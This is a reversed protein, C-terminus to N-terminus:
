KEHTCIFHYAAFQSRSSFEETQIMSKLEEVSYFAPKISENVSNNENTLTGEVEAIAINTKIDCIAVASYSAPLICDIKKLKLGTEEYLERRICDEMTEGDELMGACLNYIEKGIGMRFEKLLLMKDGQYAVISVGSVKKGLDDVSKLDKRSVTEYKKEKGAKNIYTLEYIKLYKGDYTKKLNQLKM